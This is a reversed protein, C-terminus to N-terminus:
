NLALAYFIRNGDSDEIWYPNLEDDREEKEEREHAESDISSEDDSDQIHEGENDDLLHESTDKFNNISYKKLILWRNFQDIIFWDCSILAFILDKLVSYWANLCIIENM